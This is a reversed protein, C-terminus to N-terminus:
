KRRTPKIIEINVKWLQQRRQLEAATWPKGTKTELAAAELGDRYVTYDVGVSGEPNPQSARDKGTFQGETDYFEEWNVGLRGEATTQAALKDNLVKVVKRM